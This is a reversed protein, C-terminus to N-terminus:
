KNAVYEDRLQAFLEPNEVSLEHRETNTMEAYPKSTYTKVNVPQKIESKGVVKPQVALFSQLTALPQEEAWSKMAPTIKGEREGNSILEAREKDDREKELNAIKANAEVLQGHSVSWAKVVGLAEDGLKGTSAEISKLKQIASVAENETAGADLALLALIAALNMATDKQARVPMAKPTPLPLQPSEAVPAKPQEPVRPPAPPPEIPPPAAPAPQPDSAAARTAALRSHADPRIKSVAAKVETDSLASTKTKAPRVDTCFGAKKCEDATMLRDENMLSAVADPEMGTRAAYASVATGTLLDLDAACKRMENADGLCISWPNHVLMTSTEHMSITDGAMAILSASSAACAGISVNVTAPHEQLMQYMALGQFYDGGMSEIDVNINQAKPASKLAARMADTTTCSDPAAWGDGIVGAITMQLDGNADLKYAFAKM